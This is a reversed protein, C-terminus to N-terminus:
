AQMFAGKRPQNHFRQKSNRKKRGNEPPVFAIYLERPGRALFKKHIELYEEKTLQEEVPLIMEIERHCEHCLLILSRNKDGNGFFRQPFMHHRELPRYELCKPCLSHIQM